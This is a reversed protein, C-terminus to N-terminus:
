GASHNNYEQLALNTLQDKVEKPMQVRDWYKTKDNKDQESPVGIFLGNKGEAVKFGKIVFGESTEVDFFAKVGGSGSSLKMNLVKM